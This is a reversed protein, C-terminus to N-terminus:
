FIVRQTLFRTEGKALTVERTSSPGILQDQQDYSTLTISYTGPSLWMKAIQIHDPLTQWSRTDAKETVIAFVQAITSVLLGVWRQSNHNAAAQAGIGLGKAAGMKMAARAVARVVVAPYGDDFNKKATEGLDAVRETKVEYPESMRTTAQVRTYSVRSPHRILKPLAVRVIDGQIGYLVADIGRPYGAGRYFGHHTLAVLQLADLSIPLDLFVDKKQPAEGNYSVIVLQAMADPNNGSDQVDPYAQRYREYEPFLHLAKTIRILDEKLVEPFIVGSWTAALRYDEEAKQYAVWANNVDGFAEYLVGTLYRAFPDDHYQDKDTSDMLLNLRHDIRRAEVLAEPFNGLLAYNLAKIVNIMVREYPAGRYPLETDNILFAMAENHLRITFLQEVFQDAQELVQNSQEYQGAMHLTMGRDLLYLLRSESDYEGKAQEIINAAQQPEGARLSREVATYRNSM